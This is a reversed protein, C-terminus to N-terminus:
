NFHPRDTAVCGIRFTGIVLILGKTVKFNLPVPPLVWLCVHYPVEQHAMDPEYRIFYARYISIFVLIFVFMISM